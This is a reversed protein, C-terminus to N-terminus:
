RAFITEISPFSGAALTELSVLCASQAVTQQGADGHGLQRAPSYSPQRFRPWTGM